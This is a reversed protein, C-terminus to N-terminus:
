IWIEWRMNGVEKGDRNLHQEETKKLYFLIDKKQPIKKIKM